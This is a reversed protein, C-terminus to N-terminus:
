KSTIDPKVLAIAVPILQLGSIVANVATAHPFLTMTLLCERYRFAILTEPVAPNDSSMIRRIEANWESVSRDRERKLLKSIRRFGFHNQVLFLILFFSAGIVSMVSYKVHTVSLASLSLSGAFYIVLDSRVTSFRSTGGKGDPHLPDITLLGKAVFREAIVRLSVATHFSYFIATPYVVVWLWLLYTNASVSAHPYRFANFVDNGWHDKPNHLGNLSIMTLLLGVACEGLLLWRWKGRELSLSRRHPNVIRAALSHAKATQQDAVLEEVVCTFNQYTKYAAACVIPGALLLAWFGYHNSLGRGPAEMRIVGDRAAFAIITFVWSLWVVALVILLKLQARGSFSLRAM